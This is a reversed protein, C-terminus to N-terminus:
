LPLVHIVDETYRNAATTAEDPSSGNQRTSLYAAYWHWWDHEAHTKEFAGHHLRKTSSSQSAQLTRPKQPRRIGSAAPCGHRSNRSCGATETRTRSRPSRTILVGRLTADASAHTRLPITSPVAPM